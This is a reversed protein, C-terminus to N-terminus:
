VAEDDPEPRVTPLSAAYAKLSELVVLRKSGEYRSEILGADLKPYITWVSVGLITAADKVSVFIPELPASKSM